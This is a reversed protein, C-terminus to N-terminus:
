ESLAAGAIQWLLGTVTQPYQELYELFACTNGDLATLFRGDAAKLFLPAELGFARYRGILTNLEALRAETMVPASNVRLVYKRDILYNRRIDTEGHSSDVCKISTPPAIGYLGLLDSVQQYRRSGAAIPAAEM